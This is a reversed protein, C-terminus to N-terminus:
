KQEEINLHGAGNGEPDRDVWVRLQKNDKTKVLFGFYGNEEDLMSGIITSDVLQKNIQDAESQVESRM